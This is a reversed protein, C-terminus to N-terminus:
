PFACTTVFPASKCSLRGTRERGRRAFCPKDQCWSRDPVAALWAAPILREASPGACSGEAATDPEERGPGARREAFGPRVPGLRSRPPQRRCRFATIRVRPSSSTTLWSATPAICSPAWPSLRSTRSCTSSTSYRMWPATVEVSHRPAARPASSAAAVWSHPRPRSFATTPPVTTARGCSGVHVTRTAIRRTTTSRRRSWALPRGSARASFSFFASITACSMPRM